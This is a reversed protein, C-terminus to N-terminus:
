PVRTNSVIWRQRTLGSPRGGLTYDYEGLGIVIVDNILIGFLVYLLYRSLCISCVPSGLTSLEWDLIGIVRNETPHFVLNDLKYDGHVVRLGTKREDPLHAAYWKMMKDFMPIKGISQGTEVDVTEAQALSVRSLSKIQRPFYATSPGFSSLGIEAPDLVSLSALARVAALWSIRSM